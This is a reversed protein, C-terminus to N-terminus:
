QQIAFKYNTSVDSTIKVYAFKANLNILLLHRKTIRVSFMMISNELGTSTESLSLLIM